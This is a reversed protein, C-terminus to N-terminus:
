ILEINIGLIMFTLLKNFHKGNKQTTQAPTTATVHSSSQLTKSKSTKIKPTTFTSHLATTSVSSVLYVIILGNHRALTSIATITFVVIPSKYSRLM